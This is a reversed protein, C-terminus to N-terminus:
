ANLNIWDGVKYKDGHAIVVLYASQKPDFCAVAQYLHALGRALMMAVPVSCPGNIRIVEGGSIDNGSILNELQEKASLVIADNQAPDGFGIELLNKEAISVHFPRM